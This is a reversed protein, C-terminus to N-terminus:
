RRNWVTHTQLSLFPYTLSVSHPRRREQPPTCSTRPRRHPHLSRRPPELSEKKRSGGGWYGRGSLRGVLGVPVRLALGVLGVPLLDDEVHVVILPPVAVSAPLGAATLLDSFGATGVGDGCAFSEDVLDTGTPGCDPSSAAKGSETTM